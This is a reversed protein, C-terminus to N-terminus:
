GAPRTAREDAAEPSPVFEPERRLNARFILLWGGWVGIPVLLDLGHARGAHETLSSPALTWLGDVARILLIGGAITALARLNKKADQFLLMAFPVAFHLVIISMGAFVWGGRTRHVFWLNDEQSNGIWIVLYQAFSVYAWLVTFVLLLNGLDHLRRTEIKARVFALVVVLFAIASAAQGLITVLGFTSSSWDVERSAILDMAASSMTIFYILLGAASFAGAREGRHSYTRLRWAWFSWLALSGFVRILVFPTNFLPRRHQLIAHEAVHHADAWPFLPTVGIAIPIFLITLLPLTMSAATAPRRIAEGWAGGTLHHMMVLAMSGLAVGLCLLWAFLYARYFAAPQFVWGLLCLLVGVITLVLLKNM